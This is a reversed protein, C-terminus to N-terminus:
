QIRLDTIRGGLDGKRDVDGALTLYLRYNPDSRRRAVERALPVLEFDVTTTVTATGREPERFRESVEETGVVDFVQGDHLRTVRLGNADALGEVRLDGDREQEIHASVRLDGEVRFRVGDRAVIVRDVDYTRANRGDIEFDRQYRRDNRDHDRGHSQALVPAALLAALALVGLLRPISSFANM